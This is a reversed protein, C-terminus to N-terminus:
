YVCVNWMQQENFSRRNEIAQVVAETMHPPVQFILRGRLEDQEFMTVGEPPLDWILERTPIGIREDIDAQSPRTNPRADQLCTADECHCLGVSPHNISVDIIPANEM